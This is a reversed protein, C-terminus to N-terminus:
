RLVVAPQGARPRRADAGGSSSRTSPSRRSGPACAADHLAELVPGAEEAAGAVRRGVTAHDPGDDGLAIRLLDEIQRTSLGM